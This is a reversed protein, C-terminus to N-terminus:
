IAYDIPTGNDDVGLVRQKTGDPSTLTITEGPAGVKRLFLSNIEDATYYTAGPTASPSGAVIHERHITIQEQLSTFKGDADAVEFEIVASISKTEADTFAEAMEGTNLDLAGTFTQVTETTNPTWVSQSALAVAGSLDFIKVTFSIGSIPVLSFPNYPDTGGSLELFSIVISLKDQHFFKPLTFVAQSKPGTVLRRNAIDNYLRLKVSPM